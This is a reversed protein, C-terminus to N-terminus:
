TKKGKIHFIPTGKIEEFKIAGIEERSISHSNHGKSFFIKSKKDVSVVRKLLLGYKIHNFVIIQKALPPKKWFPKFIFLYDGDEYLPSMSQGQVKFISIM